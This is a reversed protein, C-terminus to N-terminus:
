VDLNKAHDFAQYINYLWFGALIFITVVLHATLILTCAIVFFLGGRGSDRNYFQGLGPFVLSYLAAKWPVPSFVEVDTETNTNQEQM